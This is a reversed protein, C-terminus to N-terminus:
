TCELLAFRQASEQAILNFPSLTMFFDIPDIKRANTRSVTKTLPHVGTAVVTGGVTIGVPIGEGVDMGGVSVGSGDAVAVTIGVAVAVGKTGLAVM